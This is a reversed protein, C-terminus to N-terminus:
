LYSLKNAKNLTLYLSLELLLILYKNLKNDLNHPLKYRIQIAFKTYNLSGFQYKEHLKRLKILISNEVIFYLIKKIIRFIQLM